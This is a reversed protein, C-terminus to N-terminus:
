NFDKRLRKSNKIKKLETSLEKSGFSIPKKCNMEDLMKLEQTATKVTTSM